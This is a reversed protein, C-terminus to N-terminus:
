CIRPLQEEAFMTVVREDGILQRDRLVEVVSSVETSGVGILKTLLVADTLVQVRLECKWAPV